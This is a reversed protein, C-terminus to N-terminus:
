RSRRRRRRGTCGTRSARRRGRRHAAGPGFTQGSDGGALDSADGVVPGPGGGDAEVGGEAPTDAQQEGLSPEVVPVHVGAQGRRDVQHHEVEAVAAAGVRGRDTGAEAAGAQRRFAEAVQGGAGLGETSGAASRGLICGAVAFPEQDGTVVPRGPAGRARPRPRSRVLSYEPLCARRARRAAGLAPGRSRRAGSGRVPEDLRTPRRLLLGVLDAVLDVSTPGGNYLDIAGDAGVPVVAANAASQGAHFNVSSATPRAGGDPYATIYGTSTEHTATLNLDAATVGEAPVGDTGALVLKVTGHAPIEAVKGGTGAGTRTDLVRVQPAMPVVVSARGYHHYYGVVDAVFDASATSGNNLVAKGDTVPVVVLNSVTEGAAWNSNSTGPYSTGHGYVTLHGSAKTRTAAVNLVVADADSPVGGTGAATFM